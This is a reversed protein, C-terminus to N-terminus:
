YSRRLDSYVSLHGSFVLLVVIYMCHASWYCFLSLTINDHAALSIQVFLVSLVFPMKATM